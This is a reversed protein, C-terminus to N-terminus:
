TKLESFIVPIFFGSPPIAQLARFPETRYYYLTYLLLTFYNVALYMPIFSEIRLKFNTEMFQCGIFKVTLANLNRVYLWKQRPNKALYNQKVKKFFNFFNRFNMNAFQFCLKESSRASIFHNSTEIKRVHITSIFSSIFRIIWIIICNVKSM